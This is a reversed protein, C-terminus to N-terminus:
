QSLIKKAYELESDRETAFEKASYKEVTTKLIKPVNEAKIFANTVTSKTNPDYNHVMNLKMKIKGVTQESSIEITNNRIKAHEEYVVHNLNFFRVVFAPFQRKVTYVVYDASRKDKKMVTVKQNKNTANAREQMKQKYARLVDKIEIGDFRYQLSLFIKESM